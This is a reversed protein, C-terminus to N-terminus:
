GARTSGRGGTSARHLTHLWDAFTTHTSGTPSCEINALLRTVPITGGRGDVFAYDLTGHTCDDFHLTAIGVSDTTTAQSTDFRGGETRYIPMSTAKGSASGQITYWRQGGAATTDFTFWGGFLLANGSGYFDPQVSLVFGQSQTAPNAWSGSLGYQNLPV